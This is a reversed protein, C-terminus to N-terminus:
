KRDQPPNIRALAERVLREAVPYKTGSANLTRHAREINQRLKRRADETGFDERVMASVAAEIKIGHHAHLEHVIAACLKMTPDARRGRHSWTEQLHRFAVHDILRLVDRRARDDLPDGRRLAAEIQELRYLSLVFGGGSGKVMVFMEDSKKRSAVRAPSRARPVKSKRSVSREGRNMSQRRYEQATGESGDGPLM